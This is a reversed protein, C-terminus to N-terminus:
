SFSMRKEHKKINVEIKKLNKECERFIISFCINVESETFIASYKGRSGRLLYEAINM